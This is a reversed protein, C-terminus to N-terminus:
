RHTESWRDAADEGPDRIFERETRSMRVSNITGWAVCGYGTAVPVMNSAINWRARADEVRDWTWGAPLTIDAPRNNTM